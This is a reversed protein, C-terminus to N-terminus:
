ITNLKLNHVQTKQKKNNQKNKNKNHGKLTTNDILAENTTNNLIVFCFLNLFVCKVQKTM